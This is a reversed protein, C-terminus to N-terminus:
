QVNSRILDQFAEEQSKKPNKVRKLQYKQPAQHGEYTMSVERQGDVSFVQLVIEDGLKLTSLWEDIDLTSASKGDIQIILEDTSLGALYADGGPHLKRILIGQDLEDISTIGLDRLSTGDSPQEEWVLGLSKLFKEYPYAEVGDIHAAFYSEWSKGTLKEVSKLIGDEPVGQNQQFYSKYLDQFVDDLTVKGKTETRIACDLMFGARSGLTYYSIQLDPHKYPSVDLWSDFSSQSPSVVTAAYSNELSQITRGVQNLFGEESKIGARVLTLQTYYDTVGETFWHLTTYQEQSYDYPWLAAPRIRKVNWVHWFEHATIGSVQNVIREPSQSVNAPLAFSASNSHEVAHRIQYPLLRYIFHYEEFPFSGFIAKQELCIKTVADVIAKDTEEDGQYDGHFHLYFDVDELEFKLQRIEKALVTPSDVFEHYTAASFTKSTADFSMASAVKWDEPMSPVKLTVSGDYRGPVYVFLNVPNFYAQGPALLSSGADINNAYIAYKATVRGAGPHFVRWTDKDIKQVELPNGSANVAEFKSIAASYNQLFYRGPRWAPIKFDTHTDTESAVTAEIEYTHTNPASWSLQYDYDAAQMALSSMLACIILLFRNTRIM